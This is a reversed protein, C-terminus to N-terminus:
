EKANLIQQLTRPSDEREWIKSDPEFLCHIKRLTGIDTFFINKVQHKTKLDLWGAGNRIKFQVVEFILIYPVTVCEVTQM